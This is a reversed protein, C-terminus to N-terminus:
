PVRRTEGNSRIEVIVGGALAARLVGDNTRSLAIREQGPAIRRLAGLDVPAPWLPQASADYRFAVAHDVDRDVGPSQSYQVLVFSSPSDSALTVPAITRFRAGLVRGPGWAASGNETVLQVRTEAGAALAVLWGHQPWYLLSIADCAKTDLVQFDAFPSGDEDWLRLAVTSTPPDCVAMAFRGHPGAAVALPGIPPKIGAVPRPKSWLLAGHDDVIFLMPNELTGDKRESAAVIARRRDAGLDTAQVALAAPIAGGHQKRLAEANAALIPDGEIHTVVSRRAELGSGPAGSVDRRRASPAASAVETAASSPEPAPASSAASAPEPSAANSADTGADATSGSRSCGVVAASSVLGLVLVVSALAISRM